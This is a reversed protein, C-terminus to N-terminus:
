RNGRAPSRPRLAALLWTAAAPKRLGISLRDARDARRYADIAPGYLRRLVEARCRRNLGDVLGELRLPRPAVAAALEVLDGAAAAGPVVADHPIYVFQGALVSRFDSLGGRVCVAALDDEYLGALLALLGGVPEGCTPRDDVNHPMRVDAGAPNARAFSDGWVALRRADLDDRERLYRLVGRLDRLRQGVFTEGLMLAASSHSTVKGWRERSGEPRTQGTGRLDPLCVAAGGALLEAIEKARHRLFAAKGGQAVAVVCAARGGRRGRPVLLLLPIVIGSGGDLVIREVTAGALRAPKAVAEAKAAAPKVEGLARGWEARLLRRRAAPAEGSLRARLAAVRRDVREALLDCLRKPKLERALAPTMCTLEERQRRASYEDADGVAIGFWRKLLPHIGKRHLPGINTCHSAQPPRGSLGGRGHAGGLSDGAGHLGWIRQLRAWVPDRAADWSFEHAYILRRPAIAGVIVWPLFGDAASRTLNRTSEFSGYGAYNFRAEADDPLPYTTEPQPGGFNFVVAGAIREDLAAAVAAPDGGGAVAGLIVIRKPDIGPQALLVDVGRRLDWVLWGMLSEGALHLQMGVDYRFYYDQRGVRFGRAFDGPAAFPHQRREGHGLLDAVLVLCGRRAWTMGMDQLEGQEKPAHHSHCLVIGPMSEAPPKPAYLNATAWLGRRTQFVLNRIRFGEGDLSGSVRVDPRPPTSPLRGLADRLCQLKAERFRQWHGRTRVKRWAATSRLNAQRIRARMDAPVIEKPAECRGALPVDADLARLQQALDKM